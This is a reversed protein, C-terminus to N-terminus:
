RWTNFVYIVDLVLMLVICLYDEHRWLRSATFGVILGFVIDMM